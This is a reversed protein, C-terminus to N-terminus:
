AAPTRPANKGSALSVAIGVLYSLPITVLAPQRFSPPAILLWLLTAVFGTATAAALGTTTARRWFLRLTLAPLHSAAALSFGCTVLFLPDTRRAALAILIALIGCILAALRGARVAAHRHLNLRLGRFLLDHALAGAAAVLLGVATGLVALFVIACLVAFTATNVSRALLLPATSADHPDLRAATMAGLGVFLLLLLFAAIAITAVVASKRAAALNRVTLFRVAVHPLVVAGAFLALLFSLVNFRGGPTQLNAFLASNIGPPGLVDGGPILATEYVLYDGQVDSFTLTRPLALTSAQVAALFANPSLPGTQTPVELPHRPDTPLSAIFGSPHLGRNGSEPLNDILADGDLTVTIVQCEVYTAAPWYRQFREMGTFKWTTMSGDAHKVRVLHHQAWPGSPRIVTDTPALQANFAAADLTRPFADAPKANLGAHLIAAVLAGCAVLLAVAKVIQVWTAGVMGAAAVLLIAVAGAGVIVPLSAPMTFVALSFESRAFLPQALHGAAVFEAVLLLVAIVLTAGASILRLGRADAGGDLVDALTFAGGRGARHLRESFVFLALMWGSVLGVSYLVADYGHLAMLGALMLLFPAALFDGALALGNSFWPVNAHATFFGRPVRATRAVRLALAIVAASVLLVALLAGPSFSYLM